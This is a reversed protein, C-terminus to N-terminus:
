VIDRLIFGTKVGFGVHCHAILMLIVGKKYDFDTWDFSEISELLDNSLPQGFMIGKHLLMIEAEDL